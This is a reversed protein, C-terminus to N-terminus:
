GKLNGESLISCLLMSSLLGLIWRSTILRIPIMDQRCRSWIPTMVPIMVVPFTTNLLTVTEIRPSCVLAFWVDDILLLVDRDVWVGTSVGQFQVSQLLTLGVEEWMAACSSATVVLMDKFLRTFGSDGRLSTVDSKTNNVCAECWHECTNTRNCVTQYTPHVHWSSGAVHTWLQGFDQNSEHEWCWFLLKSTM